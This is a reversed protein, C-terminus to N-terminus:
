QSSTSSSHNIQIKIKIQGQLDLDITWLTKYKQDFVPSVVQVPLANHRCCARPRPVCMRPYVWVYEWLGMCRCFGFALVPRLCYFRLQMFIKYEQLWKSKGSFM